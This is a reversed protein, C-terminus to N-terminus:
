TGSVLIVGRDTVAFINNTIFDTSITVKDKDNESVKILYGDGHMYFSNFTIEHTSCKAVLNSEKEVYLIGNRILEQILKKNRNTMDWVLYISSKMAIANSIEKSYKIYLERATNIGTLYMEPKNSYISAIDRSYRVVSKVIKNSTYHEFSRDFTAFMPIETDTKPVFIMELVLNALSPNECFMISRELAEFRHPKIKDIDVTISICPLNIDYEVPTATTMTALRVLPILKMVSLEGLSDIANISDILSSAGVAVTERVDVKESMTYSSLDIKGRLEHKLDLIVEKLYAYFLPMAQKDAELWQLKLRDKFAILDAQDGFTSKSTQNSTEKSKNLQILFIKWYFALVGNLNRSCMGSEDILKFLNSKDRILELQKLGEQLYLYSSTGLGIIPDNSNDLLNTICVDDSDCKNRTLLEKIANNLYFYFRDSLVSFMIQRVESEKFELIDSTFSLSEHKGKSVKTEIETASIYSLLKDSYIDSKNLSQSNIYEIATIGDDFNLRGIGKSKIEKALENLELLESLSEFLLTSRGDELVEAPFDSITKNLKGLEVRLKEIQYAAETMTKMVDVKFDSETINDPKYSSIPLEAWLMAMGAKIHEHISSHVITDRHTLVYTWLENPAKLGKTHNTQTSMIPSLKAEDKVGPNGSYIRYSRNIGEFRDENLLQKYHYIINYFYPRRDERSTEEGYQDKNGYLHQRGNRRRFLWTNVKCLKAICQNIDFDSEYESEKVSGFSINNFKSVRGDESMIDEGSYTIDNRNYDKDFFSIAKTLVGHPDTVEFEKEKFLTGISNQMFKELIEEKIAQANSTNNRGIFYRYNSVRVGKWLTLEILPTQMYRMVIEVKSLLMNNYVDQLKNKILNIGLMINSNDCKDLLLCAIILRLNESIITSTFDIILKNFEYEGTDENMMLDQSYLQERLLSYNNRAYTLALNKHMVKLFEGILNNEADTVGALKIISYNNCKFEDDKYKRYGTDLSYSLLYICSHFSLDNANKGLM